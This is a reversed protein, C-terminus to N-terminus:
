IIIRLRQLLKNKSIKLKNNTSPTDAKQEFYPTLTNPTLFFQFGTVFGVRETNYIQVKALHIM